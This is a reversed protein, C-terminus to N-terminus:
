CSTLTSVQAQSLPENEVRMQESSTLQFSGPTNSGDLMDIINGIVPFFLPHNYTVDVSLRVSYQGATPSGSGPNVYSCYSVTAAALGPQTPNSACLFPHVNTALLGGSPSCNAGGQLYTLVQNGMATAGTADSVPLVSGYRAAERVSNTLGIQSTFILGFQIIAALVLFLVPLVIAFEAM